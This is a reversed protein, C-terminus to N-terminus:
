KTGEPVLVCRTHQVAASGNRKTSCFLRVRAQKGEHTRMVIPEGCIAGEAFVDELPEGESFVEHIHRGVVSRDLGFLNLWAQNVWLIVGSRDVSQMPVASQDIFDEAFEYRTFNASLKEGLERIRSFKTPPSTSGTNSESM